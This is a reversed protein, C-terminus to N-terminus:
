LPFYFFNVKKSAGNNKDYKIEDKQRGLPVHAFSYKTLLNFPSLHLLSLSLAHSLSLSLSRTHTHTVTFICNIGYQLGDKLLFFHLVM